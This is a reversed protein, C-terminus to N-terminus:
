GRSGERQRPVCIPTGLTTWVGGCGDSGAMDKGLCLISHSLAFLCGGCYPCTLPIPGHDAM